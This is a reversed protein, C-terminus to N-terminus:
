CSAPGDNTRRARVAFQGAACTPTRDRAQNTPSRGRSNRPQSDWVYTDWAVDRLVALARAISPEDAFFEVAEDVTLGLVQAINKDRYVVELTKPNYRTGLCTPCPTYVSPLFLLEVMVFGEGQCHECRGKGVNFSFRSADYRRSRSLRTAAFLRRIHDFMGTYTAM